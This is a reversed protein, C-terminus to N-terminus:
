IKAEGDAPKRCIGYMNFRAFDPRELKEVEFGAEKLMRHAMEHGWAPGLGMGGPQSMSLPICSMLGIGHTIGATPDDINKRPDSSAWVDIFSFVGGPKLIRWIESLMLDPRGVDHVADFVTVFNFKETWSPDMKSADGQLYTVNKQNDKKAADTAIKIAKEVIDLGHFTSNPYEKALVRNALGAGCGVDLVTAGTESIHHTMVKPQEICVKRWMELGYEYAM